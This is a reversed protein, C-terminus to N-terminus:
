CWRQGKSLLHPFIVAMTIWCGPEVMWFLMVMVAWFRPRRGHRASGVSSNRVYLSLVTHRCCVCANTMKNVKETTTM